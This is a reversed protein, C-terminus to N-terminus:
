VLPPTQVTQAAPAAPKAATQVAPAQMPPRPTCGKCPTQAAPAPKPAPKPATCLPKGNAGVGYGWGWNAGATAPCPACAQAKNAGLTLYPTPGGCNLTSGRLSKDCARGVTSVKKGTTFDYCFVAKTITDKGSATRQKEVGDWSRWSHVATPGSGKVGLWTWGPGLGGPAGVYEKDSKKCRANKSTNANECCM